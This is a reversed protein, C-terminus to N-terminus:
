SIQGLSFTKEKHVQLIGGTHCTACGKGGLEVHIKIYNGEEPHYKCSQCVIVQGKEVDAKPKFIEGNQEHCTECKIIGMDLKKKHIGHPVKNPFSFLGNLGVSRDYTIDGADTMQKDASWPQGVAGHCDICIRRRKGKAEDIKMITQPVHFAKTLALDHCILCNVETGATHSAAEAPPPMPKAGHVEKEKLANELQTIKSVKESVIASYRSATLQYVIVGTIVMVVVAIGIVAREKV